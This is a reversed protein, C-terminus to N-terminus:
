DDIANYDEQIEGMTMLELRRDETVIELVREDTPLHILDVITAQHLMEARDIRDMSQTRVGTELVNSYNVIIKAGARGQQECLTLGTGGTKPHACMAVKANDYDIWYEMPNDMRIRKPGDPTLEEIIWGDGDARITSWGHKQCLKVLRDLAGKYGAFLVIRGQDEEAELYEIVADDKPCPIEKTVRRFKKMQQTGLCKPCKVVRTQLQEVFDPDLLDTSRIAADPDTLLYREEV